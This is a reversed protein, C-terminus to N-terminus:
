LVDVLLDSEVLLVDAVLASGGVFLLVVVLGCRSPSHMLDDNGLLRAHGCRVILPALKM